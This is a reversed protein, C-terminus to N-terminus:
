DVHQLAVFGELNLDAALDLRFGGTDLVLHITTAPILTCISTLINLLEYFHKNDFADRDM